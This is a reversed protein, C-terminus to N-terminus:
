VQSRLENLFKMMRGRAGVTYVGRDELDAEQLKLMDEWSMGHFCHEYKHLRKSRLWSSIDQCPPM